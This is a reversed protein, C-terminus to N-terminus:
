SPNLKRYEEELIDMVLDDVYRGAVFSAKRRVGTEKFGLKKYIHRGSELFDYVHLEIRHLNLVDFGIKM